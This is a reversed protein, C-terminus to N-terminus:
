YFRRPTASQRRKRAPSPSVAASRRDLFEQWDSEAIRHRPRGGTKAAFNFGRLEGALIWGVIKEASVGARKALQPPTLYSSVEVQSTAM